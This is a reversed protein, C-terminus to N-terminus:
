GVKDLSISDIWNHLDVCKDTNAMTGCFGLGGLHEFKEEIQFTNM